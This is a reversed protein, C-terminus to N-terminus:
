NICALLAASMYTCDVRLFKSFIYIPSTKIPMNQISNVGVEGFLCDFLYFVALTWRNM